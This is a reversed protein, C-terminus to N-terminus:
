EWKLEETLEALSRQGKKKKETMAVDYEQDLVFRALHEDEKTSYTELFLANLAGDLENENISSRDKM